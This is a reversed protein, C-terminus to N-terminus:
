CPEHWTNLNRRKVFSLLQLVNTKDQRDAFIKFEKDLRPRNWRVLLLVAKRDKEVKKRKRSDYIKM